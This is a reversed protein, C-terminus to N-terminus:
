KAGCASGVARSAGPADIAAAIEGYTRTEGLPIRQLEEWVRRQFATGRVDLPLGRAPKRGDVRALVEAGTAATEVSLGEEELGRRLVGRLEADDEVILIRPGSM